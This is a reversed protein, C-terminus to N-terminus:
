IETEEKASIDNEYDFCRRRLHYGRNILAYYYQETPFNRIIRIYNKYLTLDKFAKFYLIKQVKKTTWLM